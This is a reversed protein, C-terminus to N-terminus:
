KHKEGHSTMVSGFVICSNHRMFYAYDIATFAPHVLTPTSSEVRPTRIVGDTLTITRTSSEVGPTRILGDPLTLTPTSSKQTSIDGDTLPAM